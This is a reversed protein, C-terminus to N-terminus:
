YLWTARGIGTADQNAEEMNAMTFKIGDAVKTRLDGVRIFQFGPMDYIGWGKNM